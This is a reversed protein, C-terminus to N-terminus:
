GSGSEKWLQRQEKNGKKRKGIVKEAVANIKQGQPFGVYHTLFIAIERVQDETLEENTLTANIQIEILDELGLASLAGLVLLRRDRLSLGPRNWVTGFLHDVTFSFYDSPFDPMDWGYVEKMKELGKRRLTQHDDPSRVDRNESSDM